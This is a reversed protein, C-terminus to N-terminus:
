HNQLDEKKKEEGNYDIRWRTGLLQGLDLFQCRICEASPDASYIQFVACLHSKVQMFQNVLWCVCRRNTPCSRSHFISVEGPHNVSLFALHFLLDSWSKNILIELQEWKRSLYAREPLCGTLCVTMSFVSCYCSWGLIESIKLHRKFVFETLCSKGLSQLRPNGQGRCTLYIKWQDLETERPEFGYHLGNVCAQKDVHSPLNRLAASSNDM